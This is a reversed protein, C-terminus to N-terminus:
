PHPAILFITIMGKTPGYYWFIRYANPTNQEVYAEWVKEGKPGKFSKFEHTQLSPHKPNRALNKVAKKVAKYHSVNSKDVKLLEYTERASDAWHLEFLIRYVQLTDLDVKSIKGKAADSLGKKALELIDKNEFVWAESAPITVQPDLLIQGLKNSYVHFIIDENVLGKPLVVRKKNDPKVGKSVRVFDEINFSIVM